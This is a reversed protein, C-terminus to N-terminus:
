KLFKKTISFSWSYPLFSLIRLFKSLMFPFSIEFKYSKNLEDFIKKAAYDVEMLQPMEFDNKATLRTKVFGHNIIQLYINKRQLEPQLSQAINVLAAKSASYAGGYPLGFCSALSANLVINSKQKQKELNAILPKLVRLVGLYNIDIMSEFNLINWEEYSMSEYIGANYFCIDLGNFINFVKSVTKEVNQNDLVDINILELNTLYKSKLELLKTSNEIDRSSAIVQFNNELWLKVLELGIGSSAGIIWVKKTM